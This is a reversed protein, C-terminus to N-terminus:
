LTHLYALLDELDVPDTAPEAPMLKHGHLITESVRENNAPAGSPLYPKKFIGLLSPGHLPGTERDYHCQGCHAIFYEHGHVQQADLQDLPLPPATTKCGTLALPSLFLSSLFLAFLTRHTKQM